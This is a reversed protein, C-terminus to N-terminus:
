SSRAATQSRSTRSTCTACLPVVQLAAVRPFGYMFHFLCVHLYLNACDNAVLLRVAVARSSPRGLDRGSNVECACFRAAWERSGVAWQGSKVRCCVFHLMFRRMLLLRSLGSHRKGTNRVVQVKMGNLAKTAEAQHARFAAMEQKETREKQKRIKAADKEAATSASHAAVACDDSSFFCPSSCPCLLLLLLKVHTRLLQRRVAACAAGCSSDGANARVCLCTSEWVHRRGTMLSFDEEASGDGSFLGQIMNKGIKNVESPHVSVRNMEDLLVPGGELARFNSAGSSAANGDEGKILRQLRRCADLAAEDDPVCGSDVQTLHMPPFALPLPATVPSPFPSCCATLPRRRGCWCRELRRM